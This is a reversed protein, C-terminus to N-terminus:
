WGALVVKGIAQGSELYAHAEAAQALTFPTPDVLPVIKHKEALDALERLIEGHRATERSHLMQILMFVVHLSLGKAHMPSLDASTRTSISVVTGRVAAAQLCRSVNEGGVTDLVFDFGRGATRSAVYADVTEERYNIPEAQWSSVLSAKEPSSITAFVQAGAAVALQTAIHGVGGTGAHILATMGPQLNGRDFLAEWATIGVLPLAAAQAFSLNRPKLACFDAHVSVLEALAGSRGKVGTGCAFIADGFAFDSVGPGVAEVTGALDCGLVTPAEPAIASLMGRRIKTDVPNVSSAAVRVLVHGPQVEPTPIESLVLQDPDGFEKLVIAKM